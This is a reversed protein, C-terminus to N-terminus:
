LRAGANIEPWYVQVWQETSQARDMVLTKSFDFLNHAEAQLEPRIVVLALRFQVQGHSRGHSRHLIDLAAQWGIKRRLELPGLEDVILLDCPLSNELIRNGWALSSRDFYWDGLQLDFAPQSMSSALPRTEGTRVDEISIGTKRKGEFVAPSLLGAADWGQTRAQAALARCFTTKGAGRQGTLLWLHSANLEM